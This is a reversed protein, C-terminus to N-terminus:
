EVTLISVTYILSACHGPNLASIKDEVIKSDISDGLELFKSWQPILFLSLLSVLIIFYHYKNVEYM